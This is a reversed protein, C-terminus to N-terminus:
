FTVFLLPWTQLSVSTFRYWTLQSLCLAHSVRSVNGAALCKGTPATPLVRRLVGGAAVPPGVWSRDQGESDGLPHHGCPPLVCVNCGMLVTQMGRFGLSSRSHPFSAFTFPVDQGEALSVTYCLSPFHDLKVLLIIDKEIHNAVFRKCSYNITIM